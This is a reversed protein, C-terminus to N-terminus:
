SGGGIKVSLIHVWVHERGVRLLRESRSAFRYGARRLALPAGSCAKEECLLVLHANAPVFHKMRYRLERDVQPMRTGIFTGAYFYLSQLGVRFNAVGHEYGRYWFFPKKGNPQVRTARLYDILKMGLGYVDGRTPDSRSYAFIDSSSDIAFAPTALAAAAALGALMARGRRFRGSLAVAIVLLAILAAGVTIWTGAHGTLGRRDDLYILLLPAGVAVVSAVLGAYVRRGQPVPRLVLGAVGGICMTMSPLLLSFYFTSQLTSGKLAIDWLLLFAESALTYLGSGLTFRWLLDHGRTTACVFGAVLAIFVPAYLRPDDLVWNWSHIEFESAGLLRNASHIQPLWFLLAGGKAISFIGCLLILGITGLAFSGLDDAGFRRATEMRDLWLYLLPIGVALVVIFVNTLVAATTFVGALALHVNRRRGTARTLTFYFAGLMYTVIAGDFYNWSESIFYLQTGLLFTFAAIAGVRGAYRRVLLYAFLGGGYFFCAHLVFYAAKTPLLSHLVYGPIIWPLRAAYYTDFFVSYAWNFNTFLSTYLWPDVWGVPNYLPPDTLWYLFTLFAGVGALTAWEAAASSTIRRSGPQSATSV